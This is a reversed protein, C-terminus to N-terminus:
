KIKLERRLVGFFLFDNFFPPGLGDVLAEGVGQDLPDVLVDVHVDLLGSLLVVV